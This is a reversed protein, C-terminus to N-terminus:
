KKNTLGNWFDNELEKIWKQFIEREERDERDERSM